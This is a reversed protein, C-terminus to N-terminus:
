RIGATGNGETAVHQGNVVGPLYPVAWAAIIGAVYRADARRTLLHDADNLGVIAKPHRAADFIERANDIDVVEDHPSHIVLLARRLGGIRERQPQTAIDTLFDRRIRFTRGALVVSAEGFREIQDHSNVLLDAVHAPHAPAGITTVARAEPIQHAAALM